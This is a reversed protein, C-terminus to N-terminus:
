INEIQWDIPEAGNASLFDNCKKFHGCGFFGRYASLPSPHPAELILHKPNDLMSKKSRAFSGWLMFVVPADKKNVERIVADTFNEWGKNQHSAAVHARVTLVANLLLVGQEAWKVLYGNNPISCGLEDQLEELSKENKLAGGPAVDMGRGRVSNMDEFSDSSSGLRGENRSIGGGFGIRDPGPSRDSSRNNSSKGGFIVKDRNNDLTDSGYVNFRQVYDNMMNIYQALRDAEKDSIGGYAIFQVGADNFCNVLYKSLSIGYGTRQSLPSTDDSVFYMLSQPVNALFRDSRCRDAVFRKFNQETIIIGLNANIFQLQAPLDESTPDYLYGFFTLMDDKLLNRLSMRSNKPFNSEPKRSIIDAYDLCTNIMKYIDKSIM